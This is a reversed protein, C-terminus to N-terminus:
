KNNKLCPFSNSCINKTWDWSLFITIFSRLLEKHTIILGKEKIERSAAVEAAAEVADGVAVAVEVAPMM